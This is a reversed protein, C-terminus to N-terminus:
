WSSGSCDVEARMTWWGCAFYKTTYRQAAFGCGFVGSDSAKSHPGGRRIARM